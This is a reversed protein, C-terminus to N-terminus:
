RTKKQISFVPTPDWDREARPVAGTEPLLSPLLHTFLAAARLAALDAGPSEAVPEAARLVITRRPNRRIEAALWVLDEFAQPTLTEGNPLFLRDLFFTVETKFGTRRLGLRQGRGSSRKDNEEKLEARQRLLGRANELGATESGTKEENVDERGASRACRTLYERAEANGPDKRLVERFQSLALDYNGSEFSALASEMAARSSSARAVPAGALFMLAAGALLAAPRPKM